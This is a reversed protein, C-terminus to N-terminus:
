ALLEKIQQVTPALTPDGISQKKLRNLCKHLFAASAESDPRLAGVAATYADCPRVVGDYAALIVTYYKHDDCVAEQRLIAFGTEYLRRILAEHRTMPQLILRKDPSRIWACRDLIAAILEGGM